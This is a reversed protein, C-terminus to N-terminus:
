KVRCVVILNHGKELSVKNWYKIYIKTNFYEALSRLLWFRNELIREFVKLVPTYGEQGVIKEVKFYKGVMRNIGEEDFHQYHATSMPRKKSPVSFIFQGDQSLTRSIEKIAEDLNGPPIHELVQFSFIVDFYNDEVQISTISENKFTAGSVIIKAFEIAKESYDIGQVVEAGAEKIKATYWGDGCGADLVNKGKLDGTLEKAISWIGNKQRWHRSSVPRMWNYPLVYRNEMVKQEQSLQKM